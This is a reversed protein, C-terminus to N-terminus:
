PVSSLFAHYLLDTKFFSVSSREGRHRIKMTKFAPPERHSQPSTASTKGSSVSAQRNSVKRVTNIEWHAPSGLPQSVSCTTEPQQKMTNLGTLSGSYPSTTLCILCMTAKLSTLQETIQSWDRDSIGPFWPVFFVGRFGALASLRQPPSQGPEGQRPTHMDAPSPVGSAVSPVAEHPPRWRSCTNPRERM